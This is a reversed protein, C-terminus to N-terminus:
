QGVSVSDSQPTEQPAIKWLTRKYPTRRFEDPPDIVTWSEVLKPKAEEMRSLLRLMGKPTIQTGSGWFRGPQPVPHLKDIRSRISPWESEGLQGLAELVYGRLESERAALEEASRRHTARRVAQWFTDAHEREAM